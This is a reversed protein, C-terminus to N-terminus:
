LEACDNSHTWCTYGEIQKCRSTWKKM